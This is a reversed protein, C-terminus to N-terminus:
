VVSKRDATQGFADLQRILGRSTSSNDLDVVAIPLETPLGEDMLTIFFLASFLPAFVMSFLYIPRASLQRMERKAINWIRNKSSQQMTM